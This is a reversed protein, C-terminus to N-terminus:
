TTEETLGDDLRRRDHRGPWLHATPRRRDSGQTPPHPLPRVARPRPPRTRSGGAMPALRAHCGDPRPCPSRRTRCGPGLPPEVAAQRSAAPLSRLSAVGDRPRRRPALSRGAVATAGDDALVIAAAVAGIGITGALEPILRRSRSHMDFWLELGILPVAAVFPVWFPATANPGRRGGVPHPRHARRRRDPGGLRTRPLTRHRWRDVLVLKVPTRAMFAVMAATGLAVGAAGPAILLGLVIPELTLGWGGHESPLAVVRWERRMRPARRDHGSSAPAAADLRVNATADSRTTM